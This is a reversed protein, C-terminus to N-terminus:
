RPGFRQAVAQPTVGLVNGIQPWTGGSRRISMVTDYLRDAAHQRALEVPLLWEEVESQTM